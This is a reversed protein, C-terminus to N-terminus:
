IHCKFCHLQILTFYKSMKEASYLARMFLAQFAIGSRYKEEQVIGASSPTADDATVRPSKSVRKKLMGKSFM